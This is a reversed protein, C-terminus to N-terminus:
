GEVVEVNITIKNYVLTGNKISFGREKLSNIIFDRIGRTMNGRGTIYVTINIENKTEELSIGNLFCKTSGNLLNNLPEYKPESLRVGLNLYDCAEQAVDRVHIIAITKSNDNIYNPILLLIGAVIIVLIFLEEM